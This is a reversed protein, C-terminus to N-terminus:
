SSVGKTEGCCAAKSAIDALPALIEARGQCCDEMLFAMLWRIAIFDATYIVARGERRSMVLGANSLVSLQASATTFNVGASRAIEGAQLGEPGARVLTRFLGLRGEHALASLRSIATTSEM